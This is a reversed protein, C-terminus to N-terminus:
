RSLISMYAKWPGVAVAYQKALVREIQSLHSLDHVVWSAVLQSLTVIGLDPHMGTRCLEETSLHMNRVATLNRERLEEFRDLLVEVPQPCSQRFQAFRDFPEFTQREGRELIIRIRPVWDTLEGHVLHGVVDYCSWTNEGETARVWEDPLGRVMRSVLGPTRELIQLAEPLKMEM